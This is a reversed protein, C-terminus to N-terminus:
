KSNSLDLTSYLLGVESGTLVFKVNELNGYSYAILKAIDFRDKFYRLEQAEDFVIPLTLGEEGVGEDIRRLLQIISPKSDKLDFSVTFGTVTVGRVNKLYDLLRRRIPLIENVEDSFLEYFAGDTYSKLGRLDLYIYPKGWENLAVKLLSTKGVRRIGVLIIFKWSGKLAELLEALEAERDFLDKRNTKPATSFYSL